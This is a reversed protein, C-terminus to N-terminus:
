VTKAIFSWPFYFRATIIILIILFLGLVLTRKIHPFVGRVWGYAHRRNNAAKLREYM